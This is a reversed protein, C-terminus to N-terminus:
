RLLAWLGFGFAALLAPGCSFVVWQSRATLEDNMRKYEPTKRYAARARDFSADMQKRMADMSASMQKISAEHARRTQAMQQHFARMDLTASKSLAANLRAMDGQLRKMDEPKM